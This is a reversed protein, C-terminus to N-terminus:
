KSGRRGRRFLRSFDPRWVRKSGRRDDSALLERVMKRQEPDSSLDMALQLHERAKTPVGVRLYLEGLRYRPYFGAPELEVAKELAETAEPIRLLRGLAIGFALFMMSSPPGIEVAQALVGAAEEFHNREILEVGRVLLVEPDRIIPISRNAVYEAGTEFQTQM